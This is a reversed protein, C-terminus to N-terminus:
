SAQNALSDRKKDLKMDYVATAGYRHPSQADHRRKDFSIVRTGGALTLERVCGIGSGHVKVATILESKIGAFDGLIAFV